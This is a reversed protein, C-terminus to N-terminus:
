AKPIRAWLSEPDVPIAIDFGSKLVEALDVAGTLVRVSPAKGDATETFRANFLSIRREPTLREALLNERFFSTPHTCLFWNVVDYDAAVQAEDTFRYLDLWGGDTQTQITAYGRDHLVRLDNTNGQHEPGPRLPLPESFLRGGFGVDAVYDGGPLDVRLLMHLRAGPRRDQAAGRLVRAALRTVSFGLAELVAAFLSNLEYCYGGRHERVLKMQISAVDLAVPRHLLPDLNEFPIAAPQLAHLANLTPLDAKPSGAYGIRAFYADIDLDETM